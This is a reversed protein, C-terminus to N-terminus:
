STLKEVVWYVALKECSFQTTVGIRYGTIRYGKSPIVLATNYAGELWRCKM